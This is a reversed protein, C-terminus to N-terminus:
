GVLRVFIADFAKAKGDTPCQNIVSSNGSFELRRSILQLCETRMGANGNFTMYARPMYFAGEFSSSSNGNIRVQNGLQARPDQYFLVGGYTGDKPASLNLQANGHIDM